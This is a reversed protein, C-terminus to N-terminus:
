RIELVRDTVHKAHLAQLATMYKQHYEDVLVEDPREGKCKPQPTTIPEGILISIPIRYPTPTVGFRGHFFPLAIGFNKQIWQRQPLFWDYTTFLDNLGVAFVPVLSAGHSLALRVFGKRDRLVVIDRGVKVLMSEEEGGTCLFLSRGCHLVDQAVTRSADVYGMSLFFERVVPIKFIVTAALGTLCHGVLGPFRQDFVTGYVSFQGLALCHIGHPHVALVYQQHDNVPLTATDSWPVVQMPFYDAVSSWLAAARRELATRPPIPAASVVTVHSRDLILVQIVYCLLLPVGVFYYFFASPTSAADGGSTAGTGDDASYWVTSYQDLTYFLGYLVGLPVLALGFVGGALTAAVARECQFPTAAWHLFASFTVM